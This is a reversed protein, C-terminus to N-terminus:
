ATQEGPKPDPRTAMLDDLEEESMYNYVYVYMAGKELAEVINSDQKLHEDDEYDVESDDIEHLVWWGPDQFCVVKSSRFCSGLRIYCELGRTSSIRKLHDLDRIQIDKASM